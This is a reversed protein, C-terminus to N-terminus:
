QGDSSGRSNRAKTADSGVSRGPRARLNEPSGNVGGTRRAFQRKSKIVTRIGGDCRVKWFKKFMGVSEGRKKQDSFTNAAVRRKGPFNDGGAVDDTIMGFRMWVEKPAAFVFRALLETTAIFSNEHRGSISRPPETGGVSEAAGPKGANGAFETEGGNHPRSNGAVPMSLRGFPKNPPRLGDRIARLAIEFIWRCTSIDEAQVVAIM